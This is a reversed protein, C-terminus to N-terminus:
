GVHELRALRNKLEAIEAENRETRQGTEQVVKELRKQRVDFRRNYDMLMSFAHATVEFGKRVEPEMGNFDVHVVHDHGRKLQRGARKQRRQALKLHESAEVVRYGVNKVAEVAHKDIQEYERAARYLAARITVRDADDDLELVEAMREYTIIEGVGLPRLLAYIARWRAEQGLAEFHSM